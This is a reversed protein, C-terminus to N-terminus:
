TNSQKIIKRSKILIIIKTSIIREQVTRKQNWNFIDNILFIVWDRYLGILFYIGVVNPGISKVGIKTINAIWIIYLM